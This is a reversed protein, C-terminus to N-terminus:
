VHARGIKSGNEYDQFDGDIRADGGPAMIDTLVTIGEGGQLSQELRTRRGPDMDAIAVTVTEM